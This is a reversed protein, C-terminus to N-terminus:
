KSSRSVLELDEDDEPHELFFRDGTNTLVMLGGGPLQELFWDMAADGTMDTVVFEVTAPERGYVVADGAEVHEGSQYKFRHQPAMKRGRGAMGDKRFRLERFPSDLLM